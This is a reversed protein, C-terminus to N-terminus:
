FRYGVAATVALMDRLNFGIDAVAYWHKSLEVQGGVNANWPHVPGQLVEFNLPGNSTQVTGSVTRETDWYSAGIWLRTPTEGFSGNWGARMMIILANIKDDLTDIDAIAYVADLSGFFSGYGGAITGGGGYTPGQSAGSASVTASGLRGLDVTLDVASDTTTYGALFYLNLFPLLWADFRAMANYTTTAVDIALFDDVARLPANGRSVKVSKVEVDRQLFLFTTSIGFPLPLEYGRMQAEEAMLPLFSSWRKENAALGGQSTGATANSAPDPPPQPTTQALGPSVWLLVVAVATKARSPVVPTTDGRARPNFFDRAPPEAPSEESVPRVAWGHVGPARYSPRQKIKAIEKITM